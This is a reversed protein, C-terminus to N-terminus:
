TWGKPNYTIFFESHSGVDCIKEKNDNENIWTRSYYSKYNHDDLFDKILKSIGNEDTATEKKTYFVCNDCVCVIGEISFDCLTMEETSLDVCILDTDTKRLKGKETQRRYQYWIGEGGFFM